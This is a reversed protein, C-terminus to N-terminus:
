LASQGGAYLKLDDDWLCDGCDLCMQVRVTNGRRSDLISHALCLARCNPCRLLGSKLDPEIKGV